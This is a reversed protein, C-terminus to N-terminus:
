AGTMAAVHCVAQAVLVGVVFWGVSATNNLDPLFMKARWRCFLSGGAILVLGTLWGTSLFGPLPLTRLGAYITIILGALIALSMMKNSRRYPFGESRLNM